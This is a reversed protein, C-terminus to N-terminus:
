STEEQTETDEAASDTDANEFWSAVEELITGATARVDFTVRQADRRGKEVAAEFRAAIEQRTTAGLADLNELPPTRALEVAREPMAQLPSGPMSFVVVLLVTALYALETAFRPRRIWQPWTAVWWRRLRVEAPLTRRLVGEVLGTGPRIIALRPLEAALRELETVLGSCSECHVLHEALLTREVGAPLLGDVLEPLREEAQHCPSGSTRDLVEGAIASGGTDAEPLRVLALLDACDACDAAHGEFRAAEWGALDGQVLLDLGAEFDQCNM